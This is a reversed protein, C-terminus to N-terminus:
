VTCDYLSAFDLHKGLRVILVEDCLGVGDKDWVGWGEWSFMFLTPKISGAKMEGAAWHM